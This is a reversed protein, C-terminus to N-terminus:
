SVRRVGAGATGGPGLDPLERTGFVDALV